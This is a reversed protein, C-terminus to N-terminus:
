LRKYKEKRRKKVKKNCSFLFIHITIYTCLYAHTCLEQSADVNKHLKMERKLTYMNEMLLIKKEGELFFILGVFMLCALLLILTSYSKTRKQKASSSSSTILPRWLHIVRCATSLLLLSAILIKNKSHSLLVLVATTLTMMQCFHSKECGLLSFRLSKQQQPEQFCILWRLENMRNVFRICENMRKLSKKLLTWGSRHKKQEKPANYWVQTSNNAEKQSHTRSHHANKQGWQRFHLFLSHM